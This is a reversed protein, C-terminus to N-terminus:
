VSQAGERIFAVLGNALAPSAGVRGHLVNTLQQKSVGLRHALNVQRIGRRQIEHAVAGRVSPPAGGRSWGNLEKFPVWSCSRRFLDSSPFLLCSLLLLPCCCVTCGLPSNTRGLSRGTSYRLRLLWPAAWGMAWGLGM